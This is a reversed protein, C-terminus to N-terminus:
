LRHSGSDRVPATGEGTWAQFVSPFRLFRGLSAVQPGSQDTVCYVPWAVALSGPGLSLGKMGCENWM